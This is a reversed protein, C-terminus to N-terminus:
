RAPVTEPTTTWSFPFPKARKMRRVRLLSVFVGAM